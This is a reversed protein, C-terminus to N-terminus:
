ESIAEDRLDSRVIVCASLEERDMFRKITGEVPAWIGTAFRDIFARDHTVILITGPFTDLGAQFRARSPIDLHNIPEDLLLCNAGGIVLRALKSSAREDYSLAGVRTFVADGEFLFFHLFHRAFTRASQARTTLRSGKRCIALRRARV